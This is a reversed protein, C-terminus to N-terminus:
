PGIDPLGQVQVPTLRDTTTGDGLQGEANWGWAWVTGDDRLAMAHWFRGAIAVVDTLGQVQVAISRNILTGDGLQGSVNAGWAWVTGDRCLAIMYWNGGAIAVVDALGQLQVPTSLGVATEDDTEDDTEGPVIVSSTLGWAWVTGDGRLALTQCVGGSVAVVDAMGQVQVPSSRDTGTGYTGDGLQGWLNWGWTWVTGDGRLAVTHHDGGAVAVVDTMGQVQVPTSRSTKTGDGLQGLYNHGWAWVTGDRRLALTHKFGGAIAVVDAMGPVQVPTSRDTTTGDGLQGFENDGWAWVTGDRRLAITHKFGGAIAVVDALGPVQVPTSRNTTTGDGLQGDFNHGWAWVTGDAAVALGHVSGAALCVGEPSVLAPVSATITISLAAGDWAVAAGLAEAVFRLPVLTRGDRIQAPVDLTVPEGSVYATQSGIELRITTDGRVATITSTAADWGVSADLAEFTVRLPVLVRGDVIVPPVDFALLTGNVTVTIDAAWAPGSFALTMSLLFSTILGVVALRRM